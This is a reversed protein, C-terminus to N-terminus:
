FTVDFHVDTGSASTWGSNFYVGNVYAESAGVNISWLDVQNSSSFSGGELVIRDGNAITIPTTWTFTYDVPSPYQTLSGLNYTSSSSGKQTGSSDYVSVYGNGSVPNYRDLAFTISTLDNDILTHGTKFKM